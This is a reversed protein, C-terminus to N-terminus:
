YFSNNQNNLMMHIDYMEENMRHYHPMRIDNYGKDLISHMDKRYDKDKNDNNKHNDFDPEINHLTYDKQM